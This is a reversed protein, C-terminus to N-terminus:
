TTGGRQAADLCQDRLRLMEPSPQMGLLVSLMQRCRRFVVMAENMQGLAIHCRMLARYTAEAGPEVAIASELLRV